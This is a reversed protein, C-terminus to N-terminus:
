EGFAMQSMRQDMNSGGRSFQLRDLVEDLLAQRRIGEIGKTQGGGVEGDHSSVGLHDLVEHFIVPCIDLAFGQETGRHQVGGYFITMMVHYLIQCLFAGSQTTVFLHIEFVYLAIGQQHFYDLPQQLAVAAITDYFFSM